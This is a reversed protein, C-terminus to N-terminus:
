DTRRSSLLALTWGCTAGLMDIGVDSLRPHRLPSFQQLFETALAPVLCILLPLWIPLRRLRQSLLFALGVFLTFHAVPQILNGLGLGRQIAAKADGPMLTGVILILGLGALASTTKSVRM